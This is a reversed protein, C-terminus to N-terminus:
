NELHFFWSEKRKRKKQTLNVWKAYSKISECFHTFFQLSSLPFIKRRKRASDILVFIITACNKFTDILLVDHLILFSITPFIPFTDCKDRDCFSIRSRILSLQQDLGTQRTDFGNRMSGSCSYIRHPMIPLLQCARARIRVALNVDRRLSTEIVNSLNSISEGGVWRSAWGVVCKISTFWSQLLQQWSEHVKFTIFRTERKVKAQVEIEFLVLLETWKRLNEITWCQKEQFWPIVGDGGDDGSLSAFFFKELASILNRLLDSFDRATLLITESVDVM